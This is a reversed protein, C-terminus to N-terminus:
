FMGRRNGSPSASEGELGTVVAAGEALADGRLETFSGDTIGTTVRVKEPTVAGEKLIWLTANAAEAAAEGATKITGGTGGHGMGPPRGPPRGPLLPSSVPAAAKNNAAANAPGRYRLAANPVRLPGHLDTTVITVNATMGPKLLLEPNEVRVVVDYTVVNNVTVPANRVQHVRGTFPRDPFSDVTFEVEQGEKVKGIDAEDVSTHIEMRTLDEAISFLTPTQFSAAVTQGLEVARSIVVGDVPSVISTYALNTRSTALSADAQSVQAAASRASAQATKLATESADLESRAILQREFLDRNREHTRLADSANAQARELNAQAAVLNAEANRVQDLFTAPDIRAILQGKRVRDNFDAHIERVTGSVQTGVSVTSTPNVTGTATVTERIGGRDVKQTLYKVPKDDPKLWWWAAGGAIALPIVMWLVKKM